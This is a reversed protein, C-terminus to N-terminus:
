TCQGLSQLVELSTKAIRVDIRFKDLAEYKETNEDIAPILDDKFMELMRKYNVHGLRAHWLSSNVVAFSSMYVFCSDDPVKNLNLMFMGNNYCNFRLKPVNLVNFLTISKRSVFELVVSGKRHIPAFHDDGMYLVSEDEVPEYTKFWCRDKCVHTTAGSNIWWEIADVHVYFAQDQSQDKSGKGSGSASTKNKKYGCFRQQEGQFWTEKRQKTKNNKNKGGKKSMNVSPGPVEKGKGNDSEHARLSEEIRLHSGLQVLSLDDKGHKLCHKFDKRSPPFKDIVSSVCISEDIKLGHQTYQGLIRLLENFQEMIPRSDIMKYNNFNSVLFKKSYADEAMYKSELLDWLDKTSKVNQYIDFLPDSMCTAEYGPFYKWRVLVFHNGKSIKEVVKFPGFFKPALKENMRRAIFRQRYPKLKLYMFEGVKFQVDKHYNDAKTKMLQQAIALHGKLEILIRDMEQLYEDVKFLPSTSMRYFVLRPLDWGYLAKFPTTKISSHFSTNYWYEAWSLWMAWKKPTDSTFCRLYTELSRNVVKSQGDMQTHYATSRKLKTRLFSAAVIVAIFPYCLPIFHAYKSLRDAVVLIITFGEFRPLGEIFDMTIDEWVQKPLELQQLLGSPLMTLYKHRQCIKCEVVLKAVDKRMGVWYIESAMRQYTKLVGSHGWGHKWSLISISYSDVKFNKTFLDEM